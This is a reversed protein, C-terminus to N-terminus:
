DNSAPYLSERRWVCCWSVIPAHSRPCQASQLAGGGGCVCVIISLVLFYSTITDVSQQFRRSDAKAAEEITLNFFLLTWIYSLM